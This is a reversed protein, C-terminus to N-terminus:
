QKELSSETKSMIGDAAILVYERLRGCKFRFPPKTIAMVPWIGKPRKWKPKSHSAAYAAPYTLNLHMQDQKLYTLTPLSM